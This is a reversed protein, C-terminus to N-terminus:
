DRQAVNLSTLLNHWRSARDIVFVLDNQVVPSALARQHLPFQWLTAGDAASFATLTDPDNDASGTALLFPDHTGVPVTIVFAEQSAAPAFHTYALLLQNDNTQTLQQRWLEKGDSANLAFLWAGPSEDFINEIYVIQGVVQMGFLRPRSGAVPITFIWRPAGTTADVAMLSTEANIYLADEIAQLQVSDADVSFRIAGSQLDFAEVVQHGSVFVIHDNATLAPKDFDIDFFDAGALDAFWLVKRSRVDLAQLSLESRIGDQKITLLRDGALAFSQTQYPTIIGTVRWQLVGTRADIIDVTNDNLTMAVWNETAVPPNKLLVGTVQVQASEVVYEWVQHGTTADYACLTVNHDEMSYAFVVGNGAAPTSVWPAKLPLSWKVQGTKMDLAFLRTRDQLAYQRGVILVITICLLCGGLLLLWRGRKSRM